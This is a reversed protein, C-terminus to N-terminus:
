VWVHTCARSFFSYFFVACHVHVSAAHQTKFIFLLLSDDFNKSAYIQNFVIFSLYLCEFADEAHKSFDVPIIVIDDKNNNREQKAEYYSKDAPETPTSQWGGM